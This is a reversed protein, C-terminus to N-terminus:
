LRFRGSNGVPFLGCIVMGAIGVLSHPRGGRNDSNHREVLRDYRSDRAFCASIREFDGTRIRNRLCQRRSLAKGGRRRSRAPVAQACAPRFAGYGRGSRRFFHRARHGSFHPRNPGCGHLRCAGDGRLGCFYRNGGIIDARGRYQFSDRSYARKDHGSYHRHLAPNDGFNRCHVYKQMITM